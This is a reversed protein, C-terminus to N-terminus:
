FELESLCNEIEESLLNEYEEILDSYEESDEGKKELYSDFDMYSDFDEEEEEHDSHFNNLADNKVNEIDINELMNIVSELNEIREQLLTGTPADQLSYPINDFKDKTEELLEDLHCKISEVGDESVGHTKTWTNVLEGLNLAYDSTTVEWYQLGCDACRVMDPHFNIVGKLYPQGVSIEKRCKQCTHVKRSKAIRVVKGM